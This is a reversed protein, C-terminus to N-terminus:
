AAREFVPEKSGKPQLKRVAGQKRLQALFFAVTKEGAGTLEGIEAASLTQGDLAALIKGAIQEAPKPKHGLPAPKPPNATLVRGVENEHLPKVERLARLEAEIEAKKQELEARKREKAYQELKSPFEPSLLEGLTVGLAEAVAGARDLNPVALGNVYKYFNATGLGALKALASAAMGQAELALRVHKAFVESAKM